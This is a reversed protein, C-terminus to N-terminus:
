KADLSPIYQAMTSTLDKLLTARTQRITEQTALRALSSCCAGLEAPLGLEKMADAPNAKFRQYYASDSGLKELLTDAQHPLLKGAM